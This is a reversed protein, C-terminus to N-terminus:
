PEPTTGPRHGRSRGIGVLVTAVDAGDGKVVVAAAGADLMRQRTRRDGRATYIVVATSPSVGRIAAIAEAGGGPMMVDVVALHPQREACLAAVGHGDSALGVLELNPHDAVLDALADRVGIDDDAVVVTLQATPAM